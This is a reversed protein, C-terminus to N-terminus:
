ALSEILRAGKRYPKNRMGSTNAAKANEGVACACSDGGGSPPYSPSLVASPLSARKLRVAPASVVAMPTSASKLVVVPSELVAVPEIASPLLVVPTLFVALPKAASLLLVVPSRLVAVPRAASVNWVM